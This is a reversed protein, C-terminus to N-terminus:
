APHKLTRWATVFTTLTKAARTENAVETKM